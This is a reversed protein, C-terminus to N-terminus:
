LEQEKDTIYSNETTPLIFMKDTNDIIPVGLDCGMHYRPVTMESMSAKLTFSGDPIMDQVSAPNMIRPYLSNFDFGSTYNFRRSVSWLAMMHKLNEETYTEDSIVTNKQHIFENMEEEADTLRRKNNKQWDIGAWVETMIKYMEATAVDIDDRVSADFRIKPLSTERDDSQPFGDLGCTELDIGAPIIRDEGNM